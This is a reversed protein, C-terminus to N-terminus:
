LGPLRQRLEKAHREAVLLETEAPDAMVLMFTSREYPKISKVKSLNILVERRARFFTGSDLGAELQALQYNVWYTETTTKAKVIGGDIYFWLIEQPDLLIVSHAKRCVLRHLRKGAGALAQVRQEDATREAEASLL